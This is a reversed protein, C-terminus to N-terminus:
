ERREERFGVYLLGIVALLTIITLVRGVQNELPTVFAISIDQDGPPPDIAIM